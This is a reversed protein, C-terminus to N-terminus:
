PKKLVDTDKVPLKAVVNIIVGALVIYSAISGLLSLDFDWNPLMQEITAPVAILGLGTGLLWVGIAQVKKFFTPASASWRASLETFFNM